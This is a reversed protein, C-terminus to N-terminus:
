TGQTTDATWVLGRGEEDVVQPHAFLIAETLDALYDDDIACQHKLPRYYVRGHQHLKTITQRIVENFTVAAGGRTQGGGPTANGSSLKAFSSAKAAAIRM